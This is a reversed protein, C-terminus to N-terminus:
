KTKTSYHYTFTPVLNPVVLPYGIEVPSVHISACPIYRGSPQTLLRYSNTKNYLSINKVHTYSQTCDLRKLFASFEM